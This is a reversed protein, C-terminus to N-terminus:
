RRRVRWPGSGRSTEFRHPQRLWRARGTGDVGQRRFSVPRGFGQLDANHKAVVPGLQPISRALSNGDLLLDLIAMFHSKGSGFSGHLFASRSKRDRVSAAVMSLASDFCTVLQPTPEYDNITRAPDAIGTTLTVVFDTKHVATPLDIFEALLKVPTAM